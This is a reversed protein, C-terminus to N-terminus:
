PMPHMQPARQTSTATLLAPLGPAGPSSLGKNRSHSDACVRSNRARDRQKHQARLGPEREESGLAQPQIEPRGRSMETHTTWGCPAFELRGRGFCAAAKTNGTNLVSAVMQKVPLSSVQCERERGRVLAYGTALSLGGTSGTEM